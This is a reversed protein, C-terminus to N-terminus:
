IGNVFCTLACQLQQLMVSVVLRVRLVRVTLRNAQVIVSCTNQMHAAQSIGMVVTYTTLPNYTTNVILTAATYVQVALSEPDIVLPKDLWGDTM